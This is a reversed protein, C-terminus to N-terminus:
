ERARSKVPRWQFLRVVMLFFFPVYFLALTTATLMGGTVATGIAIRSRAGAGSAIALPLVGAVFAISTMLIPRLRLRAAELIAQVVDQGRRRALEAFEVILIANKAALGITTVLGVQFYIDNELGRLAVALVAGIIGLPLALLVALPISWSEYLAALCLFVILVSLAYLYPAQGQSQQEQYSLGSWELTTGPAIQRQLAVMTQMARGSSVGAAPVGQIGYSARGNFRTLSNPGMGWRTRSFAAFPVMADTRASRVFWNDLDTPLMRYPADAQVYVRKVRGRDVFDGVYASGWASSLTGLVDTEALGLVALKSEDLDIRLQPTDPLTTARVQALDPNRNAAALLKDRLALFRMRDMGSTNLLELSFGSSQGLGMIAPPLTAFVDADQVGAFAQMARGLVAEASHQAGHRESFPPLTVFAMGANQGSGGFGFGDVTFVTEADQPADRLFHREIDARVKATRAYTAGSPLTYEVMLEGQDEVPLFGTPLSAFLLVLGLLIVTYAVLPGRRSRMLHDVRQVYRETTWHFGRNFAGLLGPRSLPDHAGRELLIACLPPSLVLAVLVSLAM